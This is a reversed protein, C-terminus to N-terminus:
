PNSRFLEKEGEGRVEVAPRGDERMGAVVRGAKGILELGPAGDKSVTLSAAGERGAAAVGVAGDPKVAVVVELNTGLTLIAGGDETAALVARKDLSDKGYLEIRPAGDRLGLVARRGMRDDRLIFEKAELTNPVYSRPAAGAAALAVVAGVAGGGVAAVAVRAGDRM